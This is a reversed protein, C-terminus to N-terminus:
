YHFPFIMIRFKADSENSWPNWIIIGGLDDVFTGSSIPVGDSPIKCCDSQKNRWHGVSCM